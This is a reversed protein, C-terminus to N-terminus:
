SPKVVGPDLNAQSCRASVAYRDGGYRERGKKGQEINTDDIMEGEGKKTKQLSLIFCLPSNASGNSDKNLQAGTRGRLELERELRRGKKGEEKERWMDNGDVCLLIYNPTDPSHRWSVHTGIRLRGKKETVRLTEKRGSTRGELKRATL